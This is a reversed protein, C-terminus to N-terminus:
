SQGFGQFYSDAASNRTSGQSYIYNGGNDAHWLEVLANKIPNGSSDLVRGSVYTIIGAAATLNDNLYLLDNDDDMPINKALPYYPGQTVQPTLTLAEALFGPITFGASALAISKLFKRRALSVYFPTPKKM